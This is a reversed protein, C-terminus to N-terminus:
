TAEGRVAAEIHDAINDANGAWAAGVRIEAALALVRARLGEGSGDAGGLATLIQEAPVLRTAGLRTTTLERVRETAEALRDRDAEMELAARKWTERGAALQEIQRRLREIEADRVALVADAAAEANLPDGDWDTLPWLAAAYQERLGGPAGPAPDHRAEGARRRLETEIEQTSIATGTRLLGRLFDAADRFAQARVAAQQAPATRAAALAAVAINRPDDVVLGSDHRGCREWVAAAIAELQPHGDVWVTPATDRDTTPAPGAPTAAQTDTTPEDAWRDPTVPEWDGYTVRRRVVVPGTDGPFLTVGGNEDRAGVVTSFEWEPPPTCPLLSKRIPTATQDTV